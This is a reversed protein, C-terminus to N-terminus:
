SKFYFALFFVFMALYLHLGLKANLKVYYKHFFYNLAFGIVLWALYNQLPVQNNKFMWYDFRPASKEILVDLAVMFISSLASSWFINKVFSNCMSAGAYIILGWNIGMMLPVNGVQTGLSKGYAYEGFIVGYKVGLYEATFGLLCVFGLLLIDITKKDPIDLIVLAMCLGLTLPSLSIFWDQYGLYIGLIGTLHFLWILFISINLRSFSFKMNTLEHDVPKYNKCLAFM